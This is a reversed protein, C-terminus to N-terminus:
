IATQHKLYVALLLHVLGAVYLLGSFVSHISHWQKFTRAWKVRGYIYRGFIGSAMLVLVLWAASGQLGVLGYFGLEPYVRPIPNWYMFSFPFGSHLLILAGGAVTLYCHVSLWTLKNLLGPRFLYTQASLLMLTGAYGFRYGLWGGGKLDHVRFSAATREILYEAGVAMFYAIVGLLFAM